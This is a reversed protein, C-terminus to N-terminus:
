SSHRETTICDYTQQPLAADSDSARLFPGRMIAYAKM